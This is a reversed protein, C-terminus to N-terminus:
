TLVEPVCFTTSICGVGYAMWGANYDIWNVEQRTTGAKGIGHTSISPRSHELTLDADGQAPHFQITQKVEVGTIVCSFRAGEDVVRGIWRGQEFDPGEIFDIFTYYTDPNLDTMGKPPADKITFKPGILGEFFAADTANQVVPPPVYEISGSQYRREISEEQFFETAQALEVIEAPTKLRPREGVVMLGVLGTHRRMRQGSEHESHDQV